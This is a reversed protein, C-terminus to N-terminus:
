ENQTQMAWQWHHHSSTTTSIFLDTHQTHNHNAEEPHTIETSPLKERRPHDNPNKKEDKNTKAKM